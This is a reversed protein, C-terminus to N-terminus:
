RTSMYSTIVKRISPKREIMSSAWLIIPISITLDWYEMACHFGVFGATGTVLIVRGTSSKSSEAATIEFKRKQVGESPM